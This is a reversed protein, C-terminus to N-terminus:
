KIWKVYGDPYLYSWGKKEFDEDMKVEKIIRNNAFLFKIRSWTGSLIIEEDKTMVLQESQKKIYWLDNESSYLECEDKFPKFVWKWDIIGCEKEKQAFAYWNYFAKIDEYEFPAIIENNKNIIGFKKSKEVIAIWWSFNGASSLHYEMPIIIEGNKDVFGVKNYDRKKISAQALGDHFDWIDGYKGAEIITEGNTDIVSVIINLEGDEPKSNDTIRKDGLYIDTKVWLWDSFKPSFWGLSCEFSKIEKWQQDLLLCKEWKIAIVRWESISIDEYKGFPLIIEWNM